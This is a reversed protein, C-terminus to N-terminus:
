DLFPSPATPEVDLANNVRNFYAFLGAVLTIEVIEAESYFGRLEQLLAPEVEGSGRTMAESFKLAALEPKNYLGPDLADAM